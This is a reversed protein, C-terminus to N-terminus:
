RDYGPHLPRNPSHTSWGLVGGLWQSPPRLATEGGSSVQTFPGGPPKTQGNSDNGWCVVTRNTRLACAFQGM